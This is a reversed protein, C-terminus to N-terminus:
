FRFCNRLLVAVSVMNSINKNISIGARSVILASSHGVTVVRTVVRITPDRIIAGLLRMIYIRLLQVHDVVDIFSRRLSVMSKTPM